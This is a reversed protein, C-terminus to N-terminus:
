NRKRQKRKLDLNRLQLLKKKRRRELMEGYLEIVTKPSKLREVEKNMVMRLLQYHPGGKENQKM